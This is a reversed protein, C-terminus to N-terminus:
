KGLPVYDVGELGRGLAFYSDPSDKEYYRYKAIFPQKGKAAFLWEKSVSGSANDRFAYTLGEAMNVERLEGVVDGRVGDRFEKGRPNPTFKEKNVIVTPTCGNKHCLATLFQLFDESDFYGDDVKKGFLGGLKKVGSLIGRGIASEVPKPSLFTIPGEKPTAIQELSPLAESKYIVPQPRAFSIVLSKPYFFSGMSSSRYEGYTKEITFVGECFVGDSLNKGDFPRISEQLRNKGTIPDEVPKQTRVQINGPCISQLVNIFETSIVGEIATRTPLVLSYHEDASYLQRVHESNALVERASKAEAACASSVSVASIFAFVASIYGWSYSM